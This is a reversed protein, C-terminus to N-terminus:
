ADEMIDDILDMKDGAVAFGTAQSATRSAADTTVTDTSPDFYAAALLTRAEFEAVTPTDAIDAAISDGAPAGLRAYCDGTQPTHNGAAITGLLQTSLISYNASADAAANTAQGAAISLQTSNSDMETRVNAATHTSFGTATIWEDDGRDRIAQLSDTTNAFDDWDATAEKSVLKAIISNDAIDTGTVSASVLHDLGIDSLASAVEAPTAATGAADPVVTNWDGKGDLSSAAFNAAVFAGDAIKAATIADAGIQAADITGSTNDLDIGAEGAANVDLTNAPTTSRVLQANGYTGDNVIAYSDGTQATHGDLTNVKTLDGDNEIGLDSFNPPRTYIVPAPYVVVQVGATSSVAKFFLQDGNTEAQSLDFRYFGNSIETPNTDAIASHTGDNDQEVTGTIQAADGTVPEGPDLSAHGADAFAFVLLKQGTTNKFM